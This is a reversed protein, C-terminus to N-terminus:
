ARRRRRLAMLGGVGLLVLTTPEPVVGLAVTDQMGGTWNSLLLNFDSGDINGDYDFDGDGWCGGSGAGWNSLLTNFDAGDVLGDENADGPLSPLLQFTVEDTAWYGDEAEIFLGATHTGFGLGMALLDDGTIQPNIGFADNYEGNGNLDWMYSTIEDSQPDYSGSADLSMSAGSWVSGGTGADAFLQLQGAGTPTAILTGSFDVDFTYDIAIGYDETYKNMYMTVSNQQTTTVIPSAHTGSITGVLDAKPAPDNYDALNVAYPNFTPVSVYGFLLYYQVYANLTGSIQTEFDNVEFGGGADVASSRPVNNDQVHLNKVEGRVRTDGWNTNMYFYKTPGITSDADVDMTNIQINSFTDGPTQWLAASITGSGGASGSWSDIPNGQPQGNGDPEGAYQTMTFDVTSSPDFAFTYLYPNDALAFSASFVCVAALLISYKM